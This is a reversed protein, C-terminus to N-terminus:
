SANSYMLKSLATASTTSANATSETYTTSGIILTLRIEVTQIDESLNPPTIEITKTGSSQTSDTTQISGANFLKVASDYVYPSLSGNIYYAINAKIDDYSGGVFQGNNTDVTGSFNIVFSRGNIETVPSPILRVRYMPAVSQSSVILLEKREGNMCTPLTETYIVETGNSIKIIHEPFNNSSRVASDLSNFNSLLTSYRSSLDDYNQQLTQIQSRLVGLESQDYSDSINQQIQQTITNVISNLSIKRNEYQDGATKLCLPIWTGLSSLDTTEVLQSIKKPTM